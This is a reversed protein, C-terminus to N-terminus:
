LKIWFKLYSGKVGFDMSSVLLAIIGGVIVIGIITSTPSFRDFKFSEIDGLYVSGTYYENVKVGSKSKLKGSGYISDEKVTYDDEDFEYIYQNKTKVRLDSYEEAKSFEEKTIEQYAYCGVIQTLLACVLISTIFKKYM